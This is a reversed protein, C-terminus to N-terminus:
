SDTEADAVANKIRDFAADGTRDKRDWFELALKCCAFLEANLIESESREIRIESFLRYGPHEEFYGDNEYNKIASAILENMEKDSHWSMQEYAVAEIQERETPEHDFHAWTDGYYQHEGDQITFALHYRKEKGM